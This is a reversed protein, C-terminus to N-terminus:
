GQPLNYSTGHSPNRGRSQDNAPYNKRNKGDFWRDQNSWKLDHIHEADELRQAFDEQRTHTQYGAGDACVLGIDLGRQLLSNM